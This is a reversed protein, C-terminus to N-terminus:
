QVTYTGTTTYACGTLMVETPDLLLSYANTITDAFSGTSVTQATASITKAVAASTGGLTGSSSVILAHVTTAESGACNVAAKTLHGAGATADAVQLTWPNTSTVVLAGSGAATSGPAFSTLAVSPTSVGLALTSATTGAVIQDGTTAAQAPGAVAAVATVALAATFTRRTKRM